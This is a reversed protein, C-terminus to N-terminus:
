FGPNQAALLKRGAEATRDEPARPNGAWALEYCCHLGYIDEPPMGAHTEGFLVFTTSGILGIGEQEPEDDAAACRYKVQWLM